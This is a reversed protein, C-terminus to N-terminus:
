DYTTGKVPVLHSEKKGHHIAAKNTEVWTGKNLYKGITRDCTIFEVNTPNGDKRVRIKGTGSQNEIIRQAERFSITLHSQAGLGKAKRREAHDGSLIKKGAKQWGIAALAICYPCADGHPVWAFYAGDRRANKLTTDQGTQKTMKYVVSPILNGAPSQKLSGNVAKAVEGYEPTDAMEAAPVNANELEAIYDYMTCAM